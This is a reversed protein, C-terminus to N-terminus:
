SCMWQTFMDLCLIPLVVSTAPLTLKTTIKLLGWATQIFDSLTEVGNIVLLSIAEQHDRSVLEGEWGMSGM